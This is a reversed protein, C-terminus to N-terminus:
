RGTVASPTPAAAAKRATTADGATQDAASTGALFAAWPRLSPFQDCVVKAVTVLPAAMLGGPIGWMWGGLVIAIIVTLPSIQLSKSLVLPTLIYSEISTLVAFAAAVIAGYALSEHVVSGVFFLVVMCLFAGVHPVYNLTTAMVGWLIPNPIKLTWMALATVVGLGINILTITLLYRSIGFEVSQVLQVVQRKEVFTSQAEVAQRMLKDSMALLFYAVVFVIVSAGIFHGSVGVFTMAAHSSQVEVPVPDKEEDRTLDEVASTARKLNFLPGSRAPLMGAVKEMTQPAQALWHQAQDALKGVGMLFALVVAGILVLASVYDPVHVRKMRRQLPRLILALLVALVIPIVADRAYYLATLVALTALVLLARSARPRPALPAPDPPAAAVFEERSLSSNDADTAM